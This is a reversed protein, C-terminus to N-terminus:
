LKEMFFYNAEISMNPKEPIKILKMEIIRFFPKFLQKLDDLKGFYLKIGTPAERIKGVGWYDSEGSFSISLYKGRPVLLRSVNEVYRKREAEDIIEHLFRWDFIFDFQGRFNDLDKYDLVFFECNAGVEKAHQRAYSIARKSRDFATVSFGKLALYIAYFGEGCGIDLVRCPRIKKGEILSVLEKPPEKFTWPAAGQKEYIKEFREQYDVMISCCM